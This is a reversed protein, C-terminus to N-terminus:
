GAAMIGVIVARIGVLHVVAIQAFGAERMWLLNQELSGPKDGRESLGHEHEPMTQGEGHHWGSEAHRADYQEWATRFASFLAPSVIRVRDELVFVGGPALVRAAAVFARQKGEDVTNHIAQVAFAAGYPGPPIAEATMQEFPVRALEYRGAYRALRERAMDLMPPSGDVGVCTVDQLAELIRAMVIGAGCGLDLVRRPLDGHRLYTDLIGVLLDLQEERLPSRQRAPDTNGEVWRRAYEASNWEEAM